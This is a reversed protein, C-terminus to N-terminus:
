PLVVDTKHAHHFHNTCQVKIYEDFFVEIADFNREKLLETINVEALKKKYKLEIRKAVFLYNDLGDKFKNETQSVQIKKRKVYLRTIEKRNVRNEFDDAIYKGPITLSQVCFEHTSKTVGGQPVYMWDDDFGLNLCDGYREPIPLMTDEFPVYCPKGYWEKNWFHPSGAFRQVYFFSEEDSYNFAKKTIRSLVKGKGIISSLTWNRNFHTNRGIRMSLQFPLTSLETCQTLADVYNNKADENDPVPDMIIMDISIGSEEPNTVNYRKLTATRVDCYHNITNALSCDTYQSTLVIGEPLKGKTAELFKEWNDRTMIIDADDDWPIFGKHRVAGILTGATLYYEVGNERCLQDIEKLLELVKSQLENM